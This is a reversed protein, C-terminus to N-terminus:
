PANWSGLRLGGHPEVCRAVASAVAALARADAERLDQRPRHSICCVTGFVEGNPLLVPASLYAGIQLAATIGLSAAEASASTDRIIASLRGDVVRQCYSDVLPDSRGAAVRSAAPGEASVVQFIRERDIFRSVFVVDMGLSHRVQALLFSLAHFLEPQASSASAVAFQDVAAIVQRARDEGAEASAATTM